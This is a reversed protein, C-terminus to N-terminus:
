TPEQPQPTASEPEVLELESPHIDLLRLQGWRVVAVLAYRNTHEVSPFRRLEGQLTVEGGIAPIRERWRVQRGVDHLTPEAM